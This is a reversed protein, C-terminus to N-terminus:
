IPLAIHTHLFDSIRHTTLKLDHLVHHPEEAHLLEQIRALQERSLTWLDLSELGLFVLKSIPGTMSLKRPSTSKFELVSRGLVVKKNPGNTIYHHKVPVQSSLGIKHLAAAGSPAIQVGEKAAVAAAIQDTRPTIKGFLVDTLPVTYIGHGLRDIAGTQTLRSLAKRIAASTGLHMFDSNTLVTGPREQGIKEQIQQHVSLLM